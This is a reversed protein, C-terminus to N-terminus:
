AASRLSFETRWARILYIGAGVWLISITIFVMGTNAIAHPSNIPAFKLLVALGAGFLGYLVLWVGWIRVAMSALRPSIARAAILLAIAALTFVLPSWSGIAAYVGGRILFAILTLSLLISPLHRIM